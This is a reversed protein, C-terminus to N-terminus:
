SSALDAGPTALLTHNNRPNGNNVYGPFDYGRLESCTSLPIKAWGEIRLEPKFFVPLGHAPYPAWCFVWEGESLRGWPGHRGYACRRAETANSYLWCANCPAEKRIGFGLSNGWKAPLSHESALVATQLPPWCLVLLLCVLSTYM